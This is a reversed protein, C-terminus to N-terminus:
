RGYAEIEVIRSYGEKAAHVVVRVGTAPRPAFRVTRRVRDNDKVRGVSVWKGDVCLQVEFDVIGFRTFRLEDTPTAWEGAPFADQLTTVAVRAIREPRPLEVAIWDPWKGQTADNWGGQEHQWGRGTVDDDVVSEPPYSPGHVSSATVRTGRHASLLSLPPTEFTLPASTDEGVVVQARYTREPELDRLMVAHMTGVVGTERATKDLDQRLGYRVTGRASVISRWTVEAQDRRVRVAPALIAPVKRDDGTLRVQAKPLLRLSVPGILGSPLVKAWRSKLAVHLHNSATNIVEIQLANRGPRIQQTVDFTYPPCIRVGASAGNVRVEALEQVDGLDLVVRGRGAWESPVELERRYIGPGSYGPSRATWSGLKAPASEAGLQLTWGDADVPRVEIRSTDSQKYRVQDDVQVAVALTGGDGTAVPPRAIADVVVDAGDMSVGTVEAGLAWIVRPGPAPRQARNVVLFGSEFPALRLPVLTRDEIQRCVRVPRCRGTMPDWWEPRGTGPLALEGEVTEGISENSVFYLDARARVRHLVRLDGHTPRFVVDPAHHGTRLIAKLDGPTTALFTRSRGEKPWLKKVLARVADDGGRDCSRDPLRKSAIVIGGADAFAELRELVAVPIFEVGPLVVVQYDVQEIRARRGDIRCRQPDTWLEYPVIDFDVQVQQLAAEVDEVPEHPGVWRSEAPYLVIADAVFRGKRLLWCVRNTHDAWRRFHVWQANHGRAYYFPPCDEDPWKPNFAHPVIVNIGRVCQWDTLWKMDRLGCRWGYAGFSEDMALDDAKGYIHSLSSALKPMGWYDHSRTGPWVQGVVLDIGGMDMYQETRFFHGPGYGFSYHLQSHEFLHGIHRVGHAHCWDGIKKYFVEAYRTVVYDWYDFRIAHTEPGVDAVLAPLLPTLDYGKAAKFLELFGFTWPLEKGGNYFGPEDTFFGQITTGFRDKFRDYTAQHTLEIFKDLCDSSLSDIYYAHARQVFCFVWWDGPPATWRLTGGPRAGQSPIVRLTKPDVGTPSKKGAVVAVLRHGSPIKLTAPGPGKADQQSSALFQRAFQPNALVVKGGAIGSPFWKEDFVWVKMHREEAEDFCVALDAWWKRGLYFKHPRSEITFEGCGGEDMKAITARITPEDEEGHLWFLPNLTKPPSPAAFAKRLADLDEAAAATAAALSTAVIAGALALSHTHRRTETLPM